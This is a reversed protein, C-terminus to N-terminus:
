NKEHFMEEKAEFITNVINPLNKIRYNLYEILSDLNRQGAYNKWEDPLQNIIDNIFEPTLISKFENAHIKALEVDFKKIRWIHEYTDMNYETIIKDNYDNEAIGQSFAIYDWLSQNKFVHSHDIVYFMKSKLDILINGPHRDKNYIIHDFIIMKQFDEFNLLNRIYAPKFPAAFSLFESYFCLGYNNPIIEVANKDSTLQSSYYNSFVAKEDLVCLGCAPTNINLM